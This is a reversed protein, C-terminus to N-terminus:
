IEAVVEGVAVYVEEFARANCVNTITEGTYIIYSNPCILVGGAIGHEKFSRGCRDCTADASVTGSIIADSMTAPIIVDKWQEPMEQLSIFQFASILNPKREKYLM